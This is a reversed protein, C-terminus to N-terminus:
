EDNGRVVLIRNVTFSPANKDQWSPTVSLPNRFPCTESLISASTPIIPSDSTYTHFNGKESRTPSDGRYFPIRTCNQKPPVTFPKEEIDTFSCLTLHHAIRSTEVNSSDEESVKVSVM